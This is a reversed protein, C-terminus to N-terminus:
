VIESVYYTGDSRPCLVIDGINLGKGITWIAGCALGAAIKTKHPRAELYVPRFEENFDRWNEYLNGTLDQHIGYDVGIFKGRYCEETHKNGKGLLVRRYSKTPKM